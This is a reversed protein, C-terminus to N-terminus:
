TSGRCSLCLVCSEGRPPAKGHWIIGYGNGALLVFGFPLNVKGIFLVGASRNM